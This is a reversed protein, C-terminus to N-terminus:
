SEPWGIGALRGPRCGGPGWAELVLKITLGVAPTKNGNANQSAAGQWGALGAAKLVGLGRAGTQYDLLVSLPIFCAFLKSSLSGERGRGLTKEPFM